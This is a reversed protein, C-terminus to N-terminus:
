SGRRITIADGRAEKGFSRHLTRVGMPGDGGQTRQPVKIGVSDTGGQPINKQDKEERTKKKNQSDIEGLYRKESRKKKTKACNLIV